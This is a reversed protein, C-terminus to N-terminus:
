PSTCLASFTGLTNARPSLSQGLLVGKALAATSTPAIALVNNTTAYHPGSECPHPPPGSMESPQNNIPDVLTWRCDVQALTWRRGEAGGISPPANADAIGRGIPSSSSGAMPVDAINRTPARSLVGTPAPGDGADADPSHTSASALSKQVEAFTGVPELANIDYNLPPEDPVRAADPWPSSAAPYHPLPMAGVVNSNEIQSFRGRPEAADAQAFSSFTTANENRRKALKQDNLLASLKEEQTPPITPGPNNTM